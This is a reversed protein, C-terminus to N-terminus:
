ISGPQHKIFLMVEMWHKQKNLTYKNVSQKGDKKPWTGKSHRICLHVSPINNILIAAVQLVRLAPVGEESQDDCMKM